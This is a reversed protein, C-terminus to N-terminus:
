LIMIFDLVGLPLVVTSSYWLFSSRCVTGPPDRSNATKGSDYLFDSMMPSCSYRVILSSRLYQNVSTGRGGHLSALTCWIAQLTSQLSSNFDTTSVLRCYNDLKSYDPTVFLLNSNEVIYMYVCVSKGCCGKTDGRPSPGSGSTPAIGPCGTFSVFCAKHM